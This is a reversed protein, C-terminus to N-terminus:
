DTGSEMDVILVGAGVCLPSLMQEVSVDTTLAATQLVRDDPSLEFRVGIALSHAALSQHSIMVGKPQGTSGSTYLVYALNEPCLASSPPTTPFQAIPEEEGDLCLVPCSVQPLRPLLAQQSLLVVV